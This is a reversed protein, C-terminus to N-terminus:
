LEECNIPNSKKIIEDILEWNGKETQPKKQFRVTVNVIEDTKYKGCMWTCLVTATPSPNLVGKILANHCTPRQKGNLTYSVDVTPLNAIKSIPKKVNTDEINEGCGNFIFISVTILLINKM